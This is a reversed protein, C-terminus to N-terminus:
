FILKRFGPYSFKKYSESCKRVKVTFEGADNAVRNWQGVDVRVNAPSVDSGRDRCCHAATVIWDPKGSLPDNKTVITGGCLAGDLNLKVIWNHTGKVTVLGGVIKNGKDNVAYRAYRESSERHPNGLWQLPAAPNSCVQITSKSLNEVM